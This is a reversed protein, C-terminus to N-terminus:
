SQQHNGQVDRGAATPVYGKSKKVERVMGASVYIGVVEADPYRDALKLAAAGTGTGFDLIRGAQGGPLRCKRWEGSDPVLSERLDRGLTMVASLDAPGGGVVSADFMSGGKAPLKVVDM